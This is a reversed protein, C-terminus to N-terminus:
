KKGRSSKYAPNNPNGQNSKNDMTAKNETSPPNHVDSKQDNSNRKKEEPM